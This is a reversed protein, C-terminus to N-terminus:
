KCLDLSGHQLNKFLCRGFKISIYHHLTDEKGASACQELTEGVAERILYVYGEPHSLIGQVSNDPTCTNCQLIDVLELEKHSLEMQHILLRRLKRRLCLVRINNRKM